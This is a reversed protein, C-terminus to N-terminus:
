DDADPPRNRGFHQSNKFESYVSLLAHLSEIHARSKSKTEKTNPKKDASASYVPIDLVACFIKIYDQLPLNMESTPLAIAQSGITEDVAPPWEAMLQEIDPMRKTYEVRDAPKHLHLDYVNQVWQSLARQGQASSAKNSFSLAISRVQQYAGAASSKHAARLQLDLVAPDSQKTAPEDLVTFGILPLEAVRATGEGDPYRAPPPIKIMPDIDGIAPIFDPLFTKLEPLLDIVEPQYSSVYNFLEQIQMQLSTDLSFNSPHDDRDDIESDYAIVEHRQAAVVEHRQAAIPRPNQIQMQTQPPAPPSAIQQNTVKPPPPPPSQQFSVPSESGSDEEDEDEEEEDDEDRLDNRAGGRTILSKDDLPAEHISAHSKTVDALGPAPQVSLTQNLAGESKAMMASRLASGPRKLLGDQQPSKQQAQLNPRTKTDQELGEHVVVKQERMRASGPPRPKQRQSPSDDDMLRTMKYVLAIAADVNESRDLATSLVSVDISPFEAILRALNPEM